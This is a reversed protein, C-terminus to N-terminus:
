DRGKIRVRRGELELRDESYLKIAEPYIEHEEKLVRAALSDEDDDERVPVARQLIIPGSDVGENAFHVTCGSVKVGYDLAQKHPHLGQFSPLLSPHINLVRNRYHRIFHPSLIRMFGAMVVLEVDREELASIMEQEFDSDSEYDGADIFLNDIGHNEARELARADENDSIVVKIEVKDLYGDEVGDIISQLNSGRGSALVGINLM